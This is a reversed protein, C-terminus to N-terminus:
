GFGDKSPARPGTPILRSTAVAAQRHTVARRYEEDTVMALFAGANPYRAVFAMDWLEDAPGILVLQPRASWVITGGLRAFVPASAQSYLKYAQAGSLSRGACEHGPPYAAQSNFRLLNLMEVPEDRPLDKFADFAERAPDIFAEAM